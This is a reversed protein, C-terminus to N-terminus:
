RGPLTRVEEYSSILFTVPSLQCSNLYLNVHHLARNIGTISQFYHQGHQPIPLADINGAM